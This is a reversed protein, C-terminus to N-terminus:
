SPPPRGTKEGGKERHGREDREQEGGRRRQDPEGDRSRIRRLFGEMRERAQEETIRGSEVARGLEERVRRIEERARDGHERRELDAREERERESHERREHDERGELEAELERAFGDRVLEGMMAGAQRPSLEGARVAERLRQAVAEYDTEQATAFGVPLLAMAGLVLLVRVWHPTERNTKGSVIM